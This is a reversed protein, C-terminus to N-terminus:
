LETVALGCARSRELIPSITLVPILHPNQGIRAMSAEIDSAPGSVVHEDQGFVHLGLSFGYTAVKIKFTTSDGRKGRLVALGFRVSIDPLTLSKPDTRHRAPVPAAVSEM